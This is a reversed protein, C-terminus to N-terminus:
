IKNVNDLLICDFEGKRRAIILGLIQIIKYHEKNIWSQPIESIMKAVQIKRMQTGVPYPHSFLNAGSAQKTTTTKNQKTKNRTALYNIIPKEDKM